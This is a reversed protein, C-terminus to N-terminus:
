YSVYIAFTGGPRFLKRVSFKRTRQKVMKDFNTVGCHAPDPSTGAYAKSWGMKDGDFFDTFSATLHQHRNPM